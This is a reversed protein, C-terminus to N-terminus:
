ASMQMESGEQGCILQVGFNVVLHPLEDALCKLVKSRLGQRMETTNMGIPVPSFGPIIGFVRSEHIRHTEEGLVM